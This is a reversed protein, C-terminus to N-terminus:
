SLARRLTDWDLGHYPALALDAALVHGAGVQLQAVAALAGV